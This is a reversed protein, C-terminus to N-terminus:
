GRLHTISVVDGIGFRIEPPPRRDGFTAAITGAGRSGVMDVVEPTLKVLKYPLGTTSVGADVADASPGSAPLFTECGSLLAFVAFLAMKAALEASRM